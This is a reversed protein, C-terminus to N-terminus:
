NQSTPNKRQRVAEYLLISTAVNVNLSQLKGLMPIRVLEDSKDKLLRRVGKQENGVLIAIPGQYDAEYWLKPASADACLIRIGREQMAEILRALNVVRAVRVHELAGASLRHTSATIPASRREPVFVGQVGAGEMTRILTGLNTADQIEDLICFLSQPTIPSLLEEPDFYHYPTLELVVDQHHINEAMRNLASKEVIKVPINHRRADRILRNLRGTHHGASVWMQQISDPKNQLAEEASHFGYVFRADGNM